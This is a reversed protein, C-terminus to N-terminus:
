EFGQIVSLSAGRLPARNSPFNLHVGARVYECRHRQQHADSERFSIGCSAGLALGKALNVSFALGELKGGALVSIRPDEYTVVARPVFIIAIQPLKM